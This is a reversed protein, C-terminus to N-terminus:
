DVHEMMRSLVPPTVNRDRKQPLQLRPGLNHIKVRGFDWLAGLTEQAHPSM